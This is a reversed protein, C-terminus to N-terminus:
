AEVKPIEITFMTCAQVNAEGMKHKINKCWIKGHMHKEVIQKSMYLGVGTGVSQHKTSFYPDFVKTMIDDKIGKANDIVNIYINQQTAKVVVWIKKDDIEKEVLADKSNVILNLLVHILENKFGYIELDESCTLYINIDDKQLQAQTLNFAKQIARKISFQQMKKNPNFFTRFDELTESMNHALVEADEVRSEIFDADLKGAIFKSQFSQVIMMLAGLPQRWQHAINQLMEGLAALRAQAFMIQDKKRSNEVEYKIRRELSDNLSQLEKTKDSVKSELSNNLSKFNSVLLFSVAISSLFVAGVLLFLMYISTRFVRDNRNKEAIADKLHSSMLSSIYINISNIQLFITDIIELTQREQGSSASHNLKSILQDINRMKEEIKSTIGKQYYNKEPIDESLLFFNLWSSAFQTFGEINASVLNNHNSWHAKIIQQALGIVELANAPSINDRKLDYLTDNINVTYIDKIEELEAKPLTRQQYLTEYDFKLAFISILMLFCITLMGLSVISILFYTKKTFEFQDLYKNIRTYINM